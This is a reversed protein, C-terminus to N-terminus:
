RRTNQIESCCAVFHHHPDMSSHDWRYVFYGEENLCCAVPALSSKRRQVRIAGSSSSKRM